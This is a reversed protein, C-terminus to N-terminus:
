RHPRHPGMIRESLDEVLDDFFPEQEPKLISRLKKLHNFTAREKQLHNQGLQTYLSDMTTTSLTSDKLAVFLARHLDASTEQADLMQTHHEYKLEHFQEQHQEDLKLREIIIRDPRPGPGPGLPHQGRRDNNGLVLYGLIGFNMLLLLVIVLRYFNEKSM